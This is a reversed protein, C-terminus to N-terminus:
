KSYFTFGGKSGNITVFFSARVPAERETIVYM